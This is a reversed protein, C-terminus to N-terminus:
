RLRLKDLLLGLYKNLFHERRLFSIVPPKRSGLRNLADIIQQNEGHNLSERLIRIAKPKEGAILYIKGLNLYHICNGPEARLAEECLSIAAKIQGREKALCYAFYSDAIHSSCISRAKEFCTLAAPTNNQELAQVGKNLLTEVDTYM